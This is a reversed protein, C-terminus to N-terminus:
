KLDHLRVEKTIMFTMSVTEGSETAAITPLGDSFSVDQNIDILYLKEEEYQDFISALVTSNGINNISEVIHDNILIQDAVKMIEFLKIMKSPNQQTESM